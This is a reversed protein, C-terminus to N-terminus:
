LAPFMEALAAALRVLDAQVDSSSSFWRNTFWVVQGAGDRAIQNNLQTEIQASTGQIACTTKLREDSIQRQEIAKAREAEPAGVVIVNNNSWRALGSAVPQAWEIFILQKKGPPDLRRINKLRERFLRRVAPLTLEEVFRRDEAAAPTDAFLCEALFARNVDGRNATLVRTGFREALTNRINQCGSCPDAYVERVLQDVALAHTAIGCTVRLYEMFMKVASTKGSAIGGTVGILYQGHAKEQLLQHTSVPVFRDVAVYHRVGERIQSSSITKYAGRAPLIEVAANAFWPFLNRQAEVYDREYDADKRDRVGRILVDCGLREFEDVMVGDSALITVRSPDIRRFALRAHMLREDLTFTSTKGSNQMLLVIVHDCIELAQEVTAVHGYHVPDGSLPFLGNRYPRRGLLRYISLSVSRLVINNSLPM